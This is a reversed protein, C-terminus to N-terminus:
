PHPRNGTRRSRHAVRRVLLLLLGLVVVTAFLEPPFHAAVFLVTGVDTSAVVMFIVAPVVVSLWLVWQWTRWLPKWSNLRAM